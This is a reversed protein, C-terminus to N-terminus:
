SKPLHPLVDRNFTQLLDVSVEIAQGGQEPFFLAGPDFAHRRLGFTKAFPKTLRNWERVYRDASTTRKGNPLRYDPKITKSM